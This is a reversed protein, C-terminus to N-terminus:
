PRRRRRLLYILVFVLTLALVVEASVLLSSLYEQMWVSEAVEETTVTEAEMVTEVRTGRVLLRHTNVGFPTCTLLTCYDEAPEIAILGMDEPLVTRIQDVEYTLREGLVDIYFTDGENMLPLDSFLKASSLGSHGCLVAHTGTGGVPLSRGELTGIGHELTESDTGYYVPLSLHLKPINLTAIVGSGTVNLLTEPLEDPHRKATETVTLLLRNYTHAARLAEERARDPLIETVATHYTEVVGDQRNEYLSNSILPYLVLLLGLAGCLLYGLLRLAPRKDM